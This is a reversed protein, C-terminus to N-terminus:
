GFAKVRERLSGSGVSSAAKSLKRPPLTCLSSSAKKALRPVRPAPTRTQHQVHGDSGFGLALTLHEKVLEIPQAPTIHQYQVPTVRSGSQHLGQDLM